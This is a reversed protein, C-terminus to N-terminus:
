VVRVIAGSEAVLYAGAPGIRFGRETSCLVDVAPRDLPVTQAAGSLNAVVRLDGRHVSVWRATEDYDVAVRDLRPDSLEALRHRLTILTTYLRQMSAHEPRQPESWDLKSREFTAPDQPDPVDDSNWGHAAFEEKRGRATLEGLEKEPHSTFFQWPTRAGWEEGMWLMPTFPGTLLLLAGVRALGPSTLQSLREGRARNGVQDHDQLFVVFRYGPTAVRDVPAGHPRGRFESYTGDHFFASTFTKALGPLTGFDVYYGQREGTLLAHLQHHVDDDWQADMGRGGSSRSEIMVPDNLDSEAVLILPRSLHARLADVDAALEALIHPESTDQLAHVADLRLGDLHFEDLWMLANDLIYRRVEHSGEGDLNILDGWTNRGTKLYPGFLPLYNGSPGLHNYVVDLFVALGRQHCADILRKLGDPGGYPEHVAFWGVGDYGWNRTGNFANVPLLEVHTVGLDVLHDLRDVASGFTGGPTFTGVHMEYIVAGPLDRGTWQGDQWEYGHPDYLRSWGHVGKPQRRSRPDPRVADDDDLMFGYDAEPEVEGFEWSWWGGDSAALDHVLPPQHGATIIGRVRAARPAWVRLATM